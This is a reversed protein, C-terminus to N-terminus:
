IEEVSMYDRPTTRFINQFVRYTRDGVTLEQESTRGFGACGYVGDLTGMMHSETHNLIHCLFQPSEGLLNPRIRHMGGLWNWDSDSTLNSTGRQQLSRHPWIVGDGYTSLSIDANDQRTMNYISQWDDGNLNLVYCAGQGPNAIMQNGANNKNYVELQNSNGCIMFPKLYESPLAFPLFLGAYMSMYSTNVKCVLIFRRNSAYLWYDISNQWTNFWVFPSAMNQGSDSLGDEWDTAASMRWGYAGNALEYDTYINLFFEQGTLAGPARLSLTVHDLDDDPSPSISGTYDLETWGVEDVLYKRVKELLDIHGDATGTTFM